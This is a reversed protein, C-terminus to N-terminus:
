DWKIVRPPAPAPPPERFLAATEPQLLVWLTYGGTITGIPFGTVELLAVVIGLPRGWPRRELLGYAAVLGFVGHAGLFFAIALLVSGLVRAWSDAQWAAGGLAFFLLAGSTELSALVFRTIAAARLHISMQRAKPSEMVHIM